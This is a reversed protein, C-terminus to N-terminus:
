LTALFSFDSKKKVELGSTEQFSSAEPQGKWLIEKKDKTIIGLAMLVNLADYVRRRVNKQESEGEQMKNVGEQQLEQVLENAVQNYTTKKKQEVKEAVKLSFHRLGKAAKEEKSKSTSASNNAVTSTKCM